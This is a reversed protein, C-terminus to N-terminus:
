WLICKKVPNMPSGAKCKFAKAFYNSNQVVGNIRYERPSHNDETNMRLSEDPSMNGCFTRAFQIFFLQEPTHRELGPLRVNNYKKNNRDSRYRQYWAEFAMKVGGNDAINEGLTSWGNVNVKVGKPGTVTYNGYQEIFCRSKDDFATVSSEEWW